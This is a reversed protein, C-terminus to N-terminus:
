YPAAFTAAEYTQLRHRFVDGQMAAARQKAGCSMASTTIVAATTRSGCALLAPLPLRSCRSCCVSTLLRSLKAIPRVGIHHKGSLAGGGKLQTATQACCRCQLLVQLGARHVAATCM